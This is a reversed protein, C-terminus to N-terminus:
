KFVGYDGDGIIVRVGGSPTEVKPEPKEPIESDDEPPEDIEIQQRRREEERKQEEEQKKIQDIIWPADVPPNTKQEPGM